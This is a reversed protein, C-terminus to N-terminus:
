DLWRGLTEELASSSGHPEGIWAVYGDPRVFAASPRPVEGVVSLRWTPHDGFHTGARMKTLKGCWRDPVSPGTANDFTILLPRGPTLLRFVDTEEGEVTLPMNPMRRGVLPHLGDGWSYRLGLGSLIGSYRLTTEPAQLMEAVEARLADIQPGPKILATQARALALVREAVSHREAQYTDLLADSAGAVLRAALKWGLNVADQIGLNLGQGGIPSHTHAADGALFVRGNRYRDVQRFGDTFRSTWRAERLGYDDGIGELMAQRLEALSVRASRDIPPTIRMLSVRFWGPEVQSVQYTGVRVNRGFAGGTAPPSDLRVDAVIWHALPDDGQFSAGSSRRVASHGGDCGVVFEAQLTKVAGDQSVVVDVGAERHGVHVLETSWHTKVGLEAARQGLIRETQHQPLILAQPWDPEIKGPAMPIGSFLVIPLQRGEALFREALGRQAFVEMSRANIGPARSEGTTGNARREVLAVDVGMLKLECSLMLGTPGAGVVIVQSAGSGDM